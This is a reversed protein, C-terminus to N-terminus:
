RTYHGLILQVIREKVKTDPTLHMGAKNEGPDPPMTLTKRCHIRSYRDLRVAKAKPELSALIGRYSEEFRRRQLFRGAPNTELDIRWVM